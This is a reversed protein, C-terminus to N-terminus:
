SAAAASEIVRAQGLEHHVREVTHACANEQSYRRFVGVVLKMCRSFM